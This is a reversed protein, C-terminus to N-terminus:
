PWSPWGDRDSKKNEGREEADGEVAEGASAPDSDADPKPAEGGLLVRDRADLLALRHLIEHAVAIKPQPDDEFIGVVEPDAPRGASLDSPFLLYGANNGPGFGTQSVGVRNVFLARCGKRRMKDSGLAVLQARVEGPELGADVTQAAFGLFRTRGGFEESLQTLVDPAKQFQLPFQLLQDKSMKSPSPDVVELDSVAAVKFVWDTQQEALHARAVDYMEGASEVELRQVGPPTQLSVPGTVLTVKAGRQAAASALAFGMTGSSVNSVFRVPDIYSRTPGATVLVRKGAWDRRPSTEVGASPSSSSLSSASDAEQNKSDLSSPRPPEGDSERLRKEAARVIELPSEMKGMGTWGCALDGRLPGVVTAGREILCALNDQTAPHDWMHSNMAPAIVLPARCALATTGLLDDALGMRLRALTHATAPAILLLEAWDALAIHGVESEFHVDLLEKRVNHGSVTALSLESVFHAAADSLIVQVEHGAARLDRVLQPTKYAAIGGSIGLLVRAM